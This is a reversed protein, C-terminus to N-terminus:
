LRCTSPLAPATTHMSSRRSTQTVDLLLNPQGELTTPTTTLCLSVRRGAFSADADGRIGTVEGADVSAGNSLVDSTDSSFCTSADNCTTCTEDCLLFSSGDHFFGDACRTPIDETNTTKVM